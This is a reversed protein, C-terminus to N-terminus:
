SNNNSTTDVKVHYSLFRDIGKTAVFFNIAIVPLGILFSVHTFALLIPIFHLTLCTRYQLRPIPESLDVYGVYPFLIRGQFAPSIIAESDDARIFSYVIGRRWYRKVFYLPKSNLFEYERKSLPRSWIKFGRKKRGSPIVLFWSELVGFCFVLIIIAVFEFPEFRIVNNGTTKCCKGQRM